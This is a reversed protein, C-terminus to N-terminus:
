PEGQTREWILASMSEDAVGDGELALADIGAAPLSLIFETGAEPNGLTDLRGDLSIAIRRAITSGRVLFDAIEPEDPVVLIRIGM